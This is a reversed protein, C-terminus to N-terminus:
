VKQTYNRVLDMTQDSSHDPRGYLAIEKQMEDADILAYKTKPFYGQEKMKRRFKKLLSEIKKPNHTHVIELLNVKGKDRDM